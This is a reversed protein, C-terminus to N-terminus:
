EDGNKHDKNRIDPAKKADPPKKGMTPVLLGPALIASGAVRSMVNFRKRYKQNVM